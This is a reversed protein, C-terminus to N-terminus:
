FRNQRMREIETRVLALPLEFFGFREYLPALMPHLIEVLNDNMETATARAALSVESDHCIRDVSFYRGPEVAGLRRGQLGTYRCTVVIGADEPQFQQAFRSAFLMAEGVRWIPMTVDLLTGPQIREVSDEDYGRLLYLLGAPAARWFDSHASDRNFRDVDPGLWAEIQGDVARPQLAQRNLAVFPGWGTHKIRRAEELRSRLQALGQAPVVGALEFSLEYNGLPMRAPDQAPLDAVITNWRERARSRFDDLPQDPNVQPLPDGRGQVILRIADLMNERRANLCREMVGRWEEATFPEESRPGPKRVYCRQAAIVGECGRRSMVPVTMGGPVIVFAHEQGSGPHIAFMLGCHFSPETYRSIAANIEDLSYRSLDAPRPQSGLAGGEATDERMGLVIIGGGENAIAIAAKALNARGSNDSLALWSKYEVSLTESPIELLLRLEQETPM